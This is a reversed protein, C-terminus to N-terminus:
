TTIGIGSVVVIGVGKDQCNNLFKNNRQGFTLLNRSQDSIRVRQKRTFDGTYM